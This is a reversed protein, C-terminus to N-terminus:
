SKKTRQWLEELGAILREVSRWAECDELKRCYGDRAMEILEDVQRLEKRLKINEQALREILDCVRQRLENTIQCWGWSKMMMLAAGEQQSIAGANHLDMVEDGIRQFEEHVTEGEHPNKMSVDIGAIAALARIDSIYGIPKIDIKLEDNELDAFHIAGRDKKEDSVVPSVGRMIEAWGFTDDRISWLCKICKIRTDKKVLPSHCKPCRPEVGRSKEDSM